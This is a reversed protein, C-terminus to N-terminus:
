DSLHSIDRWWFFMLVTFCIFTIVLFPIAYKQEADAMMLLFMSFMSVVCAGLLARDIWIPRNSTDM